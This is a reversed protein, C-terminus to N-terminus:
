MLGLQTLIYAVDEQTIQGSSLYQTLTNEVAQASLGNRGGGRKLSAVLTDPNLKATQTTEGVVGQPQAAKQQKYFEYLTDTKGAALGLGVLYEYAKVDDGLALMNAIIGTEASTSSGGGGGGGGGTYVPTNAKVYAATMNAINEPTYGDIGSYGSFDGYKGLTEARSLADAKQQALQADRKAYYDSLVGQQANFVATARNSDVESLANAEKSGLTALRDTTFSSRAMGRSLADNETTQRAQAYYDRAQQKVADYQNGIQNQAIVGAASSLENPNLYQGYLNLNSAGKEIRSQQAAAIQSNLSATTTPNAGVLQQKLQNILASYDTNPDYAM